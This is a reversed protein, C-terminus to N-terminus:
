VHRSRHGISPVPTELLVVSDAVDLGVTGIISTQIQSRGDMVHVYFADDEADYSWRVGSASRAGEPLGGSIQRRFDLIEIGLVDSFDTQDIVCTVQVSRSVMGEQFRIVLTGNHLTASPFELSM